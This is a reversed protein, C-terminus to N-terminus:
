PNWEGLPIRNVVSRREASGSLRVGLLRKVGFLGWPDVQPDVCEDDMVLISEEEFKVTYAAWDEDQDDTAYYTVSMEHPSPFSTRPHPACPSAWLKSSGPVLAFQKKFYFNRMEPLGMTSASGYRGEGDHETRYLLLGLSLQRLQSLASSRRSEFRAQIYAPWALAALALVIAIVCMLEVM